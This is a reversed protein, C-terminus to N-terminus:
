PSVRKKRGKGKRRSDIILDPISINNVLYTHKVNVSSM